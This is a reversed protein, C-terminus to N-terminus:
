PVLKWVRGSLSTAYLEGAADEGFSSLEPIRIPERRIGAARGGSIQLSWVAGSCYDGYVYRGRLDPIAKGRYVYGGTISCHGPAHSYEAVPPM